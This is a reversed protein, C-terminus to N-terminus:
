GKYREKVEVDAVYRMATEASIWGFWAMLEDVSYGLRAMKTTCQSRGYRALHSILQFTTDFLAVHFGKAKLHSSIYLLGLTPRQVGAFQEQQGFTIQLRNHRFIRRFLSRDVQQDIGIRHLCLPRASTRPVIKGPQLGV